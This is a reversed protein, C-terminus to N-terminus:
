PPIPLRAVNLDYDRFPHLNSDEQGCWHLLWSDPVGKNGEIRLFFMDSEKNLDAAAIATRYLTEM